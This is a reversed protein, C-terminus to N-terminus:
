LFKDIADVTDDMESALRNLLGPVANELGIDDAAVIQELRRPALLDLADDEGRRVVRDAEIRPLALDAGVLRHARIRTVTDALGEAFRDAREIGILVTQPHGANADAIEGVRRDI